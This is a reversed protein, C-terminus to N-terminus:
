ATRSLLAGVTRSSTRRTSSTIWTPTSATRPQDLVLARRLEGFDVEGSGDADMM